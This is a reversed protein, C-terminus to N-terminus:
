NHESSLCNESEEKQEFHVWLPHDNCDLLIKVLVDVFQQAVIIFVHLTTQEAQDLCDAGLKHRSKQRGEFFAEILKKL